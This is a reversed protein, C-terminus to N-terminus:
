VLGRRSEIFFVHAVGQELYRKQVVDFVLVRPNQEHALRTGMEGMPSLRSINVLEAQGTRLRTQVAQRESLYRMVVALFRHGNWFAEGVSLEVSVSSGDRRQATVIRIPGIVAGESAGGSREVDSDRAEREDSPMLVAVNRGIVQGKTWQLLKEAARSFALIRGDEDTVLMADPVTDLISQVNRQLELANRRKDMALSHARLMLGGTVAIMALLAFMLVVDIRNGAIVGYRTILAIGMAVAGAGLAVVLVAYFYLAPSARLNPRASAAGDMAAGLREM